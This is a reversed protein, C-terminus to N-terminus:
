NLLDIIFDFDSLDSDGGEIIYAFGDSNYVIKGDFSEGESVDGDVYVLFFDYSKCDKVKKVCKYKMYDQMLFFDQNCNDCDVFENDELGEELQDFGFKVQDDLGLSDDFEDSDVFSDFRSNKIVNFCFFKEFFKELRESKFQSETFFVNFKMVGYFNFIFIFVFVMEFIYNGFLFILFQLEM